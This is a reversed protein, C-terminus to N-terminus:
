VKKPLFQGKSYMFKSRITNDLSKGCDNLIDEKCIYSIALYRLLILIYYFALVDIKLILYDALETLKNELM